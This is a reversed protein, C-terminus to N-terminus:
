TWHPGFITVTILLCSVGTPVIHQSFSRHYIGSSPEVSILGNPLSVFLHVCPILSCMPDSWSQLRLAASLTNSPFRGTMARDIPSTFNEFLWGIRTQNGTQLNYVSKVTICAKSVPEFNSLYCKDDVLSYQIIGRLSKSKLGM